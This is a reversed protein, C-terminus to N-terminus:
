NDNLILQAAREALAITPINTNSSPISPMVSADVVRLNRLGRVRLNSDVVALEDNGMRCTGVPHWSTQGSRRIYDLLDDDSQVSSSPRTEEVIIDKFIGTASLARAKRLASVMIQQDTKQKLYNPNIQSMQAADNSVIHSSGRSQPRLQFFGITFGPFLDLGYGNSTSYRDAASLHHIQLKITPQEHDRGEHHILAHSSAGPTAMLGKKTMMYRAGMLYTRLKSAVIRNLGVQKNAKFSIRSQLHDSLNEGVGALPHVLKVGAQGLVDPNGIGSLELLKPSNVTGASLIIEKTAQMTQQSGGQVFSVSTAVGDEVHIKTVMADTIVTLNKRRKAEAIYTSATGCRVGNRTSFQLLSVGDYREGNYDDNYPVGVDNCSRIFARTLLDDDNVKTAVIKGDRGRYKDNGFAANELKRFFPLMNEYSWGQCGGKEWNDYERPDGRSFLMGNVSSSGGVMRGHPFLIKQRNLYEQEVTEDKWFYKERNLIKALGIPVRIWFDNHHEGGAEILLVSAKNDESLRNAVVSGASGAGIVIYDYM